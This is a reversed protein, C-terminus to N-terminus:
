EEEAEADNTCDDCIGIEGVCLFEGCVECRM